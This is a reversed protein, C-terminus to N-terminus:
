AGQRSKAIEEWNVRELATGIMDSAFGGIVNGSLAEFVLSEVYTATMPETLEDQAYSLDEDFWLSVLWTERNTWGNYEM